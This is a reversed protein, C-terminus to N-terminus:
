ENNILKFRGASSGINGAIELDLLIESLRGPDIGTIGILEETGIGAANKGIAEFVAAHEPSEFSQEPKEAGESKEAPAATEPQEPETLQKKEQKAPANKKRFSPRQAADHEPEQEKLVGRRYAKEIDGPSMYLKAGSRVATVAGAYAATFIDNPPVFIPALSYEATALAGSKAGAQLVLTVYSIGGLIRSRKIFNGQIAREKPFFETLVLGGSDVLFRRLTKSGGPYTASFGCPLVEIFPIGCKLANLCTLQDCGESLTGVVAYESNIASIIKPLVSATHDTVARSGVVTVLKKNLLSREGHLFLVCPPNAQKKLHEPYDPSSITMVSYGDDLISELLKEADELKTKEAKEALERGVLAMNGRFADYVKEPDGFQRLLRSIEPESEGLALLLWIYYKDM